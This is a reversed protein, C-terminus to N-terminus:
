KKIRKASWPATGFDGLQVEGSMTDGNVKGTFSLTFDGQPTSITMTWQLAGDKITGEGSITGQPGSLSVKFTEKDQTFTADSPNDGNPTQVTMAWAGSIGTDKPQEKNQNKPPDQSQSLGWIPVALVLVWVLMSVNKRM